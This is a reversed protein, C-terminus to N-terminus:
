AGSPGAATVVLVLDAWGAALREVDGRTEIGSEAIAPIGPPVRSVLEAAVGLEVAFTTLDRSNVGLATPEAALAPELETVDHVEIVVGLGQARAARALRRLAAPELLRAPM